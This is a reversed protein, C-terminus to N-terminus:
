RTTVRTSLTKEVGDRVFRVRIEDGPALKKLAQSYARMGNVPEDNVVTIIDGERLGAKEAPAGERVGELRVGEGTYGFDPVTGFSVRRASAPKTEATRGSASLKSHLRDPREGLYRVTEDLVSAVKVLGPYDIKDPTDGPRHFDEHQGAFFQVAPVGAAIFATQDSSGFDDPVTKVPVGTVYGVGRFVHVWEDATGTGFVILPREGLRGVTDLNLMALIADSPAAGARDVYRRSGLLGTEEGTFAVFVVTRPLPRAQLTRALELMVAIGSANDDAGPHVKGLDESSGSTEGLGLHDYHAGVVLSEGARRPDSGPLVAIVNRLAVRADREDVQQQWSQFYGGDDGGPQLGAAKFQRAIYDAARDLQPTGLGRGAMADDALFAIDSRMREISFREAPAVLPPRPALSAPTASVTEGDLQEVSVSLPSSVVPWQGKLVNDPETGTFGLYSYRGYHPLKRGLGSVAAATDAALWGIAQHPAHPQRGLVVM